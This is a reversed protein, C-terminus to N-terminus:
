PQDFFVLMNALQGVCIIFNYLTELVNKESLVPATLEGSVISFNYLKIVGGICNKVDNSKLEYINNMYKLTNKNDGLILQGDQNKLFIKIPTKSNIKAGTVIEYENDSIKKINSVKGLMSSIKIIDM